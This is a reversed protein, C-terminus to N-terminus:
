PAALRGLFHRLGAMSETWTPRVRSRDVAARGMRALLWRDAALRALAAAVAGSDDRPVLFGTEGDVVLAAADSERCAVVPLGRRHAESYAISASEPWSPMALLHSADLHEAVQTEPVAGRWEVRDALGHVDLLRRAAAVTEPEADANGVARLVVGGDRGLRVLAQIVLHFGKARTLSGLFLARLPGDQAARREVQAEAVADLHDGAPPAVVTPVARGALEPIRRAIPDNVAAAGSLTALYAGELRRAFTEDSTGSRATATLLHVIAVTPVGLRALHRNAAVLSPHAVEDEVVVDPRTERVREVVRRRVAFSDTLGRPWEPWPLELLDVRDGRSELHEVLRRDYFFGGSASDLTGYLVLLVRL